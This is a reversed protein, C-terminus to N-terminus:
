LSAPDIWIHSGVKVSMVKGRRAWQYIASGSCRAIEAAKKPRIWGRPPRPPLLARLDANEAELAANRRQLLENEVELAVRRRLGPTRPRDGKEVIREDRSDHEHLQTASM